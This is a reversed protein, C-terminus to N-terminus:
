YINITKQIHNSDTKAWGEVITYSDLKKKKLRKRKKM